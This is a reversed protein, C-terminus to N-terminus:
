IVINIWKRRFFRPVCFLIRVVDGIEVLAMVAPLSLHLVLVGIFALPLALALNCIVELIMCFLNDGGARLIGVMYIYALMKPTVLLASIRLTRVLLQDTEPPFDYLKPVLGSIGLMVLSVVIILIVTAAQACLGFYYAKDKDGRGLSEGIIMATANGVGFFVCQLLESIVSVVQAVAMASVGIRGYAGFTLATVVAWSSEVVIVPVATKMTRLFLSRSFGFLERRGARFPHDKALYVYLLMAAMEAIRAILTALAAGKVGLAPLGLKGFILLYNLVINVLVAAANIATPANVRQIARANFSFATTVGTFVYSLCAIRIYDRGCAIVGSDKTFLSLIAEPFLMVAATFLCAAAVGLLLDIGIIRRIGKIDKAGWYQATFVASGSLLGFMTVSLVFYVQNAAGVAAVETEGLRGIMLTDMFNLSMSVINQLVVPIGILLIKRSFESRAATKDFTM